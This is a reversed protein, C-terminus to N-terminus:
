RPRVYDPDFDHKWQSGEASCEWAGKIMRGDDSFVETMGVKRGIVGEKRAM